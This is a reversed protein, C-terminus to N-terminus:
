AMVPAAAPAPARAPAPAGAVGCGLAPLVEVLPAPRALLFGQATDCGAEVVRALQEPTEIGEVTVTMGLDHCIDVVAKVMRHTRDSTAVDAIFSRDLKVIDVPLRMLQSLSSYGTGFDDLAVAHGAARLEALIGAIRDPDAVVASETLELVVRAPDTGWEAMVTAVHAPFGDDSLQRASVNVNVRSRHHGAADMAALDACTQRLVWTGVPVVLGTEEAVPIFDSPPVLGSERQWRVLAETGTVLGTRLSVLPQHHLLLEGAGVANQLAEVLAARRALQELRLEDHLVVGGRGSRKAEHMASEALRLADTGRMGGSSVMAGMGATFSMQKGGVVVGSLLGHRIQHVVSAVDDHGAPAVVAFVDTGFHAVTAGRGCAVQLAVATGKLAEEAGVQGHDDLVASFQDLDIVVVVQRQNAADLRREIALRNPLGTVRDHFVLHELWASHRTRDTIDHANVILGGVAPDDRCDTVSIAFWAEEGGRLPVKLDVQAPEGGGALARSVVAAAAAREGRTVMGLYHRGVLVAPDTIGLLRAVSPTAFTIVGEDSLVLMVDDSRRVLAAFRRETRTTAKQAASRRETELVLRAMAAGFDQAVVRRVSLALVAALAVALAAAVLVFAQEDRRDKMEAAGEAYFGNEFQVYLGRLSEEAQLAHAQLGPLAEVLVADRSPGAELAIVEALGAAVADASDVADAVQERDDADPLPYARLQALQRQLFGVQLLSQDSDVERAEDGELVLRLRLADRQADALNGSTNQALNFNETARDLSTFSRVVVTQIVVVTLLLIVFLAVQWRGLGRRAVLEGLRGSAVPTSM